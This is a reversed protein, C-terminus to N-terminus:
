PLNPKEIQPLRYGDKKDMNRTKIMNVLDLFSKHTSQRRVKKDLFRLLSQMYEKQAFEPNGAAMTVYAAQMIDKKMEQERFHYNAGGFYRLEIRRTAENVDGIPMFNVSQYKVNQVLKEEATHTLEPLGGDVYVQALDIYDELRDSLMKDVYNRIPYKSHSRIFEDDMLTIMKLKDLNRLNIGKISLNVHMGTRESTSGKDDIYQFVQEMVQLAHDMPLPKTIAEVGQDVSPDTTVDVFDQMSIGWENDPDSWDETVISVADNGDSLLYESSDVEEYADERIGDMYEDRSKGELMHYLEDIDMDEAQDRARDIAEEVHDDASKDFIGSVSDVMEMIMSLESRHDEGDAMFWEILEEDSGDMPPEVDDIRNADDILEELEDQNEVYRESDDFMTTSVDQLTVEIHNFLKLMYQAAERVKSTDIEGEDAAQADDWLQEIEELQDITDQLSGVRDILNRMERIADEFDGLVDRANEEEGEVWSERLDSDKKEMENDVYDDIAEMYRDEDINDEDSADADDVHFEYEIGIMILNKIKMLERAERNGFRLAENIQELQM